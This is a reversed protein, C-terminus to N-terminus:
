VAHMPEILKLNEQFRNLADEIIDDRATIDPAFVTFWFCPEFCPMGCTFPFAIRDESVRGKECVWMGPLDKDLDYECALHACNKCSQGFDRRVPALIDDISMNDERREMSSGNTPSGTKETLDSGEKLGNFRGNLM